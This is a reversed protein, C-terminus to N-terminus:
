RRAAVFVRVYVGFCLFIFFSVCICLRLYVFMWTSYLSIGVYSFCACRCATFFVFVVFFTVLGYIYVIDLSM